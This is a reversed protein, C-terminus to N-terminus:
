EACNFANLGQAQVAIFPRVENKVWHGHQACLQVPWMINGKNPQPSNMQSQSFSTDTEIKMQIITWTVKLSDDGRYEYEHMVQDIPWGSSIPHSMVNPLEM